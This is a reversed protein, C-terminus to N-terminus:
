IKAAENMQKIEGMSLPRALSSDLRPQPELSANAELAGAEEMPLDGARKVYLPCYPQHSQDKPSAHCNCNKM